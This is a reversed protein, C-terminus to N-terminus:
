LVIRLSALDCSCLVCIHCAICQGSLGYELTTHQQLAAGRIIMHIATGPQIKTMLVLKHETCHPQLFGEASIAAPRRM